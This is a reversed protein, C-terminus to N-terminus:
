KSLSSGRLIGDTTEIGLGEQTPCMRQQGPRFGAKQGCDFSHNESKMIVEEPNGRKFIYDHLSRSHLDWVEM